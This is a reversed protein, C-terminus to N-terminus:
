MIYSSLYETNQIYAKPLSSTADFGKTGYSSRVLYRYCSKDRARIEMQPLLLYSLAKATYFRISQILQILM